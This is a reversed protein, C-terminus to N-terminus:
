TRRQRDTGGWRTGHQGTAGKTGAEKSRPTRLRAPRNMTKRHGVPGSKSAVTRREIMNQYGQAPIDLVPLEYFLGNPTLRHQSNKLIEGRVWEVRAKALKMQTGYVSASRTHPTAPYFQGALGSAIDECEVKPRAYDRRPSALTGITQGVSHSRQRKCPIAAFARVGSEDPATFPLLACMPVLVSQQMTKTRVTTARAPARAPSAGRGQSSDGYRSNDSPLSVPLSESQRPGRRPRDPRLAPEPM